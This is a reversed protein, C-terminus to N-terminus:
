EQPRSLPLDVGKKETNRNRGLTGGYSNKKGWRIGLRGGEGRGRYKLLQPHLKGESTKKGGMKKSKKGQRKSELINIVKRRGSDAGTPPLIKTIEAIQGELV